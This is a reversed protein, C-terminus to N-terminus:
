AGRKGLTISTDGKQVHIFKRDSQGALERVLTMLPPDDSVYPRPPGAARMLDIEDQGIEFRLLMEEDSVGPGAYQARIDSLSPQVRPNAMMQRARPRDLIKQRVDPNMAQIAEDGGWYGLALEIAQDSVVKYREGAVVNIAAQTGV